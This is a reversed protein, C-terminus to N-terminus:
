EESTKATVLPSVGAVVRGRGGRTRGEKPEEIRGDEAGLTTAEQSVRTRICSTM